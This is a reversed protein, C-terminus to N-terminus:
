HTHLVYMGNKQAMKFQGDRVIQLKEPPYYAQMIREIYSTPIAIATLVHFVGLGREQRISEDRTSRMLVDLFMRQMPVVGPIPGATVSRPIGPTATSAAETYAAVPPNTKDHSGFFFDNYVWTLFTNFQEKSLGRGSRVLSRIASYNSLTNKSFDTFMRSPNM